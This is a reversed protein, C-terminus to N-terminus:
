FFITLIMGIRHVYDELGEKNVFDYNIVVEIDKIDLGRAAVDTAVLLRLAGSRFKNMIITRATQDKDGHLTGVPYGLDRLEYALDDCDLKRAVFILVKPISAKREALTKSPDDPVFSELLEELKPFKDINKLVHIHQQISKNANLTDVGGLKVEVPDKLYDHALNVIAKPWTATFFLSQRNSNCEKILTKIQPEFGMDLMRDAEDLVLYHVNSLDLEGAEMLDNCRGPTGVIIDVGRSLQRVQVGRPAGGYLPLILLGTSKSFKTAEEFIQISLERTPALILIQPRRRSGYFDKPNNLVKLFGPLLFGCTKGSGTRAVSILDRGALAISWSQAQIPTPEVFGENLLSNIITPPFPTQDFSTMPPFNQGKRDRISIDHLKQYENIESSFARFTSLTLSQGGRPSVFKVLRFM